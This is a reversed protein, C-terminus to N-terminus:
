GTNIKGNQCDKSSSLVKRPQENAVVCEKEVALHLLGLQQLLKVESGLVESANLLVCQKGAPNIDGPEILGSVDFDHGKM